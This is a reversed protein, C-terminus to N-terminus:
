VILVIQIVMNQIDQWEFILLVM